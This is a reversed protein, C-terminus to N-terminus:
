QPALLVIERTDMPSGDEDLWVTVIGDYGDALLATTLRARKKGYARYLQAKWSGGDYTNGPTSNFCLVLPHKLRATGAKWNRQLDGPDPNHLLYMGAPEIDQQFRAGFYGARETNRVYRFEVPRGTEFRVGYEKVKTRCVSEVKKM